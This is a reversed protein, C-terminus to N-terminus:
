INPVSFVYFISFSKRLTVQLPREHDIFHVRRRGFIIDEESSSRRRAHKPLTVIQQAKITAHKTGMSVMQSVTPMPENKGGPEEGRSCFLKRIRAVMNILLSTGVNRIESTTLFVMSTNLVCYIGTLLGGM